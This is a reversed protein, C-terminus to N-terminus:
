TAVKALQVFCRGGHSTISLTRLSALEALVCLAEPGLVAWSFPHSLRGAVELHVQHAAAATGSPGVEVVARGAPALLEHVRRLLRLPDGGIGINGDALLVSEWRGEAPLPDFVDRRLAHAGRDRTQRVARPAVDIGLAVLGRTSLEQTFRGPGCGIDLTAGSCGNLLAEDTADCTSAWRSVPLEVPGTPMGHLVCRAGALATDFLEAIPHRDPSIERWARSFRTHPAALCVAAADLATDVDRLMSVRTVRAGSAQLMRRTDADTRSTSMPVDGLGGAWRPDALGLVWWGGDVAPGLVADCRRSDLRAGIDRLQASSVQPTDTGLQVVPAALVAAADRHALTLREAFDEGRQPVVTWSRLRATLEAARFACTLDGSLAVVRRGEDFAGECADLTDLLAVAALEAAVQQGVTAGLRTKAQGAVPAKAVVLVGANM